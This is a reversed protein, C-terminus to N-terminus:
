SCQTTDTINTVARIAGGDLNNYYFIHGSGKLATSCIRYETASVRYYTLAVDSSLVVRSGDDFTFSQSQMAKTSPLASNDGEYRSVAEITHRIDSKAADDQAGASYSLYVPIAIAVLIGIIVVVVLLEILTFGDQM